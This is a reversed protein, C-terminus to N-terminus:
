VFDLMLVDTRSDLIDAYQSKFKDNYLKAYIWPICWLYRKWGLVSSYKNTIKPYTDNYAPIIPTKYDWEWKNYAGCFIVKEKDANETYIRQIINQLQHFIHIYDDPCENYELLVRFYIPDEKSALTKLLGMLYSFSHIIHKGANYEVLGHAYCYSGDPYVKLRFDFFRVGSNFQEIISKSQCKAFINILSMYWKCPLFSLSNHSGLM